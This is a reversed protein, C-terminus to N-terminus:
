DLVILKDGTKVVSDVHVYVERVRGNRPAAIENEMKMAELIILSQGEQVEKGLSVRVDM